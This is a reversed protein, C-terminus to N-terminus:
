KENIVEDYDLRQEHPWFFIISNGEEGEQLIEFLKSFSNGEADAAMIIEAEPNLRKLQKILDKALMVSCGKM